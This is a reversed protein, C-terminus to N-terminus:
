GMSPPAAHNATEAHVAATVTRAAAAVDPDLGEGASFDRGSIAYIVVHKPLRGLGRGIEVTDALGLAHTSAAGVDRPLAHDDAEVRHVTGPPAASEAADIIWVADAGEWALLLSTPEGESELVDVGPPPRRRLLRAVELGVADDHRYPNGIGIVTLRM